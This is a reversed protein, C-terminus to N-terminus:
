SGVWRGRGVSLSLGLWTRSPGTAPWTSDVRRRSRLPAGLPADRLARALDPGPTPPQRRGAGGYPVDVAVGHHQIHVGCDDDRVAVFSQAAGVQDLSVTAVDGRLCAAVM